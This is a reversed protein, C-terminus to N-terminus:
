RGAVTIAQGANLATDVHTLLNTVSVHMIELFPGPYVGMFIVLVVLPAFVAIERANMDLIATLSDKTLKGFIVRRYLYLMYAAGLVLGTAALAAVWTNAKFAGVLILFEGDAVTLNLGKLATVGGPYSRTVDRFEIEAM